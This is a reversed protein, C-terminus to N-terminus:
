YEEESLNHINEMHLEILGNDDDYFESMDNSRENYSKVMKLILSLFDRGEMSMHLKLEKNDDEYPDPEIELEIKIQKYDHDFEFSDQNVNSWIEKM